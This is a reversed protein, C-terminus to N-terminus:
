GNSHNEINDKSYDIGFVFDLKAEIWKYFDGGVGVAYDILTDGRNGTGVILKKKFYNHYVAPGDHLNRNTKDPNIVPCIAVVQDLKIDNAPAKAAVRLAFNGGLSFGALYNKQHPPM